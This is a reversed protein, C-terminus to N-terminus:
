GVQWVNWEGEGVRWAGRTIKRGEDKTVLSTRLDNIDTVIGNLADKFSTLSGVVNVVLPDVDTSWVENTATIYEGLTMGADRATNFVDVLEQSNYNKIVNLTELSGFIAEGIRISGSQFHTIMDGFMQPIASIGFNQELFKALDTQGALALGGAILSVQPAAIIKTLDFLGLLIEGIGALFIEIRVLGGSVMWKNFEIAMPILALALPRLLASLLDGIPRLVLNLTAGFLKLVGKLSASSELTAKFIDELVNFIIKGTAVGVATQAVGGAFGGVGGGAGGLGTVGAGGGGLNVNVNVDYKGM